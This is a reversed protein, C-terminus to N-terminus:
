SEWTCIEDENQLVKKQDNSDINIFWNIIKRSIYIKPYRYFPCINKSLVSEKEM